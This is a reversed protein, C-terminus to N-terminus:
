ANRVTAQALPLEIRVRVVDADDYKMKIKGGNKELLTRALILRLSMGPDDGETLRANPDLYPSLAVVRGGEQPYSVVIVGEGESHIDVEGRPKSEFLATRVVNKLAFRLHKQDMFVETDPGIHIFEDQVWAKKSEPLVDELVHRLQELLSIPQGAPRGL